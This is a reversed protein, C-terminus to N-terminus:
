RCVGLLKVTNVEVGEVFSKNWVDLIVPYTSGGLIEEKIQPTEQITQIYM